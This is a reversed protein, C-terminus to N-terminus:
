SLRDLKWVVVVDGDRLKDLMHHLEPRDWGAGSAAKEFIRCCDADISLRPRCLMARSTMSLCTCGLLFLSQRRRKIRGYFRM